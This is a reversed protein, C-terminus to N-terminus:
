VHEEEKEEHSSHLTLGEMFFKFISEAVDIKTSDPLVNSFQFILLCTMEMGTRCKVRGKGVVISPDLINDWVTTFHCLQQWKGVSM